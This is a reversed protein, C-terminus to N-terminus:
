LPPFQQQTCYDGQHPREARRLGEGLKTTRGRAGAHSFRRAARSDDGREGGSLPSPTLPVAYVSRRGRPARQTETTFFYRGTTGVGRVMAVNKATAGRVGIAVRNRGLIVWTRWKMGGAGGSAVSQM